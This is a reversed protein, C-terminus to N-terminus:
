IKPGRFHKVGQLLLESFFLMCTRNAASLQQPITVFRQLVKSDFKVLFSIKTKFVLYLITFVLAFDDRSDMYRNPKPVSSFLGLDVKRNLVFVENRQHGINKYGLM